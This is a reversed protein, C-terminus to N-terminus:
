RRQEVPETNLPLRAHRMREFAWHVAYASWGIAVAMAANVVLVSSATLLFAVADTRRMKTLRSWTSWELLCFGMWATVGALASIPVHAVLGALATMFALVFLAHFLNSM